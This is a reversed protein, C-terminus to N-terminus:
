FARAFVAGLFVDDEITSLKARILGMGYSVSWNWDESDYEVAARLGLPTIAADAGFFVGSLAGTGVGGHLMIDSLLGPVAETDPMTKSVAFYFSQEGYAEPLAGDEDGINRVGVALAPTFSTEPMVSLQLGFVDSDEDDFDTFRAGEVEFRGVGLNALIITGDGESNGAYEAKIGGTGLTTGTPMLVLRDAYVGGALICLMMAAAVALLLSRSM